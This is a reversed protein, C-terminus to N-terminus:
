KLESVLCFFLILIVTAFLFNSVLNLAGINLLSRGLTQYGAAWDPRLHIAQKASDVAPYIEELEM